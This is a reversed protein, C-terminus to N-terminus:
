PSSEFLGGGILNRVLLREVRQGSYAASLLKGKQATEETAIKRMLSSTGEWGEQSIARAVFEAIEQSKGGGRQNLGM